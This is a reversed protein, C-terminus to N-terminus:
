QIPNQFTSFFIGVFFVVNGPRLDIPPEFGSRDHQDGLSAGPPRVNCLVSKRGPLRLASFRTITMASTQICSSNSADSLRFSIRHLPLPSKSFTAAQIGCRPTAIRNHSYAPFTKRDATSGFFEASM